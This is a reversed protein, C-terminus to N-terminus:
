FGPAVLLAAGAGVCVCGLSGTLVVRGTLSGVEDSGTFTGRGDFVDSGTFTGRGVLVFSGILSGVEASGDIGTGYGPLGPADPTPASIGEDPQQQPGGYSLQCLM